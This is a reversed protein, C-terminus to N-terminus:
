IIIPPRSPVEIFVTGPLHLSESIFSISIFYFLLGSSPLLMEPGSWTAQVSDSIKCGPCAKMVSCKEPAFSCCYCVLGGRTNKASCLSLYSFPASLLVLLAIIAPIAKIIKM